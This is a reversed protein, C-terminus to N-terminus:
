GSPPLSSRLLIVRVSSPWWRRANQATPVGDADLARAIAGLTKGAAREERIRAAVEAPVTPPRGVPTRRPAPPAPRRREAVYRELEDIPILRQGWGTEVTEVLPVVRRAVTSSSVGLAEAAQAVSYALREVSEAQRLTSPSHRRAKEAKQLQRRRSM